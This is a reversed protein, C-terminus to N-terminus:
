RMRDEDDDLSVLADKQFKKRKKSGFAWFMIGAFLALLIVTVYEHFLAAMKNNGERMESIILRAAM